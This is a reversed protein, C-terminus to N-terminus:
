MYHAPNSSAFLSLLPSKHKCCQIIFCPKPNSTPMSQKQISKNVGKEHLMSNQTDWIKKKRKGRVSQSENNPTTKPEGTCTYLDCECGEGTVFLLWPVHRFWWDFRDLRLNGWQGDVNRVVNGMEHAWKRWRSTSDPPAVKKNMKDLGHHM